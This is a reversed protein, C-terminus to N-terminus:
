MNGIYVYNLYKEAANKLKYMTESPTPDRDSYKFRPFFRSLHYPINKDLSSLWKAIDEVDDENEDPLVLTTVEVHCAKYAREITKKVPELTGGVMDYTKGYYGKIDVNMADIKPLLMELPEENIYGNTVLVNMLGAERIMLSCDTIYEYGILPENYTYAIGINGDSVSQKAIETVAEPTM